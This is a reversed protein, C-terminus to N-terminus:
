RMGLNLRAMLQLYEGPNIGGAGYKGMMERIRMAEAIRLNDIYDYVNKDGKEIPEIGYLPLIDYPDMDSIAVKTYNLAKVTLNNVSVEISSGDSRTLTFIIDISGTYEPTFARPNEIQIHDNGQVMEVKQLTLGEAFTLGELLNVEQDIQLTRGQLNELGYVAIATLTIEATAKNQFEDTVSLVLTGADLLIDGSNIKEGAISLEVTCTESYDDKWTAAVQDDFFLQNGEIKIKVGAIVNKEAIKVEIAPAQSDTKTLTIEAESSNGAEDSVKVQLKGEESLKDGSNITKATGGTPTLTITVTCSTSKDDKWSAVVDNGIKLGNGSVTLSPGSIVNVTSKSVTITPATTDKEPTPPNVPTVPTVPTPDIPEDGGCSVLLSLM